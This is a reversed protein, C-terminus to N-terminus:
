WLSSLIFSRGDGSASALSLLSWVCNGSFVSAVPLDVYSLCLSTPSSVLSVPLYRLENPKELIAQRTASSHCRCCSAVSLSNPAATLIPNNQYDIIEIIILILKTQLQPIVGKFAFLQVGFICCFINGKLLFFSNQVKLQTQFGM